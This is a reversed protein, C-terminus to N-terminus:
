LDHPEPGKGAKWLAPSIGYLKQAVSCAVLAMPSMHCDCDCTVHSLVAVTGRLQEGHM